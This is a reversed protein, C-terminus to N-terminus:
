LCKGTFARRGPHRSDGVKRVLEKSREWDATKGTIGIYGEVPEQGLWTDILFLDTVPELARALSLFPFGPSMIDPPIPISRMIEIEPFREKLRAQLSIAPGLDIERGQPDTLADCLHLFRPRYYDLAHSITEERHFLPIISNKTGTGDSLMILERIEPRRWSEESLLVSGLHDVGLGICAEAEEPTQIEYIQVIM